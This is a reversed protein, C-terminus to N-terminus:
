SCAKITTRLATMGPTRKDTICGFQPRQPGSGLMSHRPDLAHRASSQPITLYGGAKTRSCAWSSIWSRTTMPTMIPWCPTAGRRSIRSRSRFPPRIPQFRLARAFRSRRAPLQRRQCIVGCSNGWPRRSRGRCCRHPRRGQGATPVARRPNDPGIRTDLDKREASRLVSSTEHGAENLLNIACPAPHRGIRGRIAPWPMSNHPCVM